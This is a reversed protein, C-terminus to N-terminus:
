DTTNEPLVQTIALEAARASLHGVHARLLVVIGSLQERSVGVNTAMQIHAKLQPEAGSLNALAALTLVERTPYDLVGRGFLDGFLHRQLYINAAPAFDFLAGAVPGGVLDTQVQRGLLETDAGGALTVGEPGPKDQLGAAKREEVVQLLSALGNLARPFGVYAYLHLISEKLENVTAGEDLAAVFAQKLAPMEGATAFAAVPVLSAQLSTLAVPQLAVDVSSHAKQYDEDTVKEKWTVNNGDKDGTIVLHTMARHPTAGHWHDIDAPCWVTEGESFALVLGDRTGTLATGSTVVMHQGAPHSHWATRATPQFTVYAGSFATDPTDPFLVQVYVEGSFLNGPGQFFPQSGFSYLQQTQLAAEPATASAMAAVSTVVGAISQATVSLAKGLRSDTM